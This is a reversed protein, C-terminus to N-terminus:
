SAEQVGKCFHHLRGKGPPEVGTGFQGCQSKFRTTAAVVRRVSPMIRKGSFFFAELLELEPM